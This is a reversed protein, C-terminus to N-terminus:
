GHDSADLKEARSLMYREAAIMHQRSVDYAEEARGDKLAALLRYQFLLGEERSAPEPDAYIRRALPLNRLMNQAFVCAFGLVPNPCLQALLSHFDLEAMRQQYQESLDVPSHDYIRITDELRALDSASVKGALLAAVEPELAKRVAYIDTLSPREFFFVNDLLELAHSGSLRSVFAGGGPGSRTKILGQTELAKMAERVTGKAASFLQILDKEQPLRDGPQLRQDRILDKIRDAILEPRRRSRKAPTFLRLTAGDTQGRESENGDTM